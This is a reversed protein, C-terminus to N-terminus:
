RPPDAALAATAHRGIEDLRPFDHPHRRLASVMVAAWAAARRWTDRDVAPLASRFASRGAADFTLWCTALDCAPDGSSLDGFDLLAALRGDEILLNAPHPDGHVWLAPGDWTPAAVGDDWAALLVEADPATALRPRVTQERSALTVGRYPNHPADDPAPAHLAALAHGLTAAWATRDAVPVTDAGTGTLWPVVSWPAPFLPSPRGIRVPVPVAVPLTRALQPLWRQEHAILPVALARLPLRVALHDGLRVMANDWGAGARRLDLEALDPHQEALLARVLRTDIEFEHLPHPGAPRTM